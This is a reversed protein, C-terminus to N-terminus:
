NWLVDCPHWYLKGKIIYYILISKKNIQKTNLLKCM